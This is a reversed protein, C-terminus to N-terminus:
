LVPYATVIGRGAPELIVQIKVGDRIGIVHFKAPMGKNTFLGGNGTQPVWKLKPDTAIDSIEHMIKDASWGKPFVTKGPNGPWMHGGSKISEGYLIHMTRQSNALNTYEKGFPNIFGPEAACRGFNREMFNAFKKGVANASTVVKEKASDVFSVLGNKVRYYVDSAYGTVKFNNLFSPIKKVGHLFAATATFWTAEQLREQGSLSRHNAADYGLGVRIGTLLLSLADGVVMGYRAGVAAGGLTGVGPAVSGAIGGVGGGIIAGGIGGWDNVLHIMKDLAWDVTVLVPNVPKADIPLGREINDIKIATAKLADVSTAAKIEQGLKNKLVFDVKGSKTVSKRDASFGFDNPDVSKANSELSSAFDFQIQENSDFGFNFETKMEQPKSSDGAEAVIESIVQDKNKRVPSKFKKDTKVTDGALEEIVAQEEHADFFEEAVKEAQEQEKKLEARRKRSANHMHGLEKGIERLRQFSPTFFAFALHTEDPKYDERAESVNRRLNAPIGKAIKLTIKPGIVSHIVGEQKHKDWTFTEQSNVAGGSQYSFGFEKADTNDKLYIDNVELEDAEIEGEGDLLAGNLTLKDKVKLKIKTGDAFGGQAIVAIKESGAAGANVSGSQGDTGAFIAAHYQKYYSKDPLTGIVCNKDVTIDVDSRKDQIQPDNTVIEGGFLYNIAQMNGGVKITTKKARIPIHPHEESAGNGVSADVGAGTIGVGPVFAVSAGVETSSTEKSVSTGPTFSLDGISTLTIEKTNVFKVGELNNQEAEMEVASADLKPQETMCMVQKQGMFGLRFNLSPTFSKGDSPLGLRQAVLAKISQGHVSNTVVNDLLKIFEAATLVGHYGVQSPRQASVTAVLSAVLPDSTAYQQLATAFEANFLSKLITLGFANIRLSVQTTDTEYCRTVGKINNKKGAKFVIREGATVDEFELDNDETTVFSINKGAKHQGSMQDTNNGKTDEYLFGESNIGFTSERWKTQITFPKVVNGKEGKYHINGGADVYTGVNTVKGAKSQMNVDGHKAIIRSMGVNAAERMVSKVTLFGTFKTSDEALYKYACNQTLVGLFGDITANNGAEITSALNMVLGAESLLEVDNGASIQGEVFTAAKSSNKKGLIRGWLGPDWQVVSESLVYTNIVNGNQSVLKINHTANITGGKNVTDQDTKIDIDLGLVVGTNGEQPVRISYTKKGSLGENVTQKKEQMLKENVFSKSEIKLQKATVISGTNFVHLEKGHIHAEDAKIMAEPHFNSYDKEAIYVAPLLYTPKSSCTPYQHYFFSINPKRNGNFGSLIMWYNGTEHLRKHHFLHFGSRSEDVRYQQAVSEFVTREDDALTNWIQRSKAEESAASPISNNMPYFEGNVQGFLIGEQKLDELQESCSAENPLLIHGTREGISICTSESEMSSPMFLKEVNILTAIEDIKSQENNLYIPLYSPRYQAKESMHVIDTAFFPKNEFSYLKFMDKPLADGFGSGSWALPMGHALGNSLNSKVDGADVDLKGSAGFIGTNKIGPLGGRYYDGKLQYKKGEVLMELKNGAWILSASYCIEPKDLSKDNKMTDFSIDYYWSNIAFGNGSLYRRQQPRGAINSLKQFSINMDQQAYIIASHNHIENAAIKVNGGKSMIVAPNSQETSFKIKNLDPIRGNVLSGIIYFPYRWLPAPQQQLPLRNLILKNVGVSIDKLALISGSVLQLFGNPVNIELVDTDIRANQSM